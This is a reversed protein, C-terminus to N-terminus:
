KYYYFWNGKFSRDCDEQTAFFCDQVAEKPYGLETMKAKHYDKIKETLGNAKAAELESDTKFIYSVFYNEPSIYAGFDLSSYIEQFKNETAARTKEVITKWNVSNM